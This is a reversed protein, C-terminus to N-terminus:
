SDIRKETNCFPCNVLSPVVSVQTVFKKDCGSCDITMLRPQFSQPPTTPSPPLVQASGPTGSQFRTQQTGTTDSPFPTQQIQSPEPPQPPPSLTQTGRASANPFFESVLSPPTAVDSMMSQRLSESAREPVPDASLEPPPTTPSLPRTSVTAVMPLAHIEPSTPPQVMEPSPLLPADPASPQLTKEAEPGMTTYPLTKPEGMGQEPGKLTPQAERPTLPMFQDPHQSPLKYHLPIESIHGSSPATGTAPDSLSLRDLDARNIGPTPHSEIEARLADPKGTGDRKQRRLVIFILLGIIMLFLIVGIIFWTWSEKKPDKPIGKSDDKVKVSISATSRKGSFSAEVTLDYTKLELKSEAFINVNITKEEKPSLIFTKDMSVLLDGSITLNVQEKVNGLNKMTLNVLKSEGREIEVEDMEFLLVVEHTAKFEGLISFSWIETDFSFPFGDVDAEVKWYYTTKDELGSLKLQTDPTEPLAKLDDPSTGLHVTFTVDNGSPNYIDWTLLIETTTLITDKEPTM